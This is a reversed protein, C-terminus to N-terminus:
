ASDSGAMEEMSAQPARYTKALHQVLLLVDEHLRIVTAGVNEIGDRLDEEGFLELISIVTEASDRMEDLDLSRAKGDSMLNIRTSGLIGGLGAIVGILTTLQGRVAWLM